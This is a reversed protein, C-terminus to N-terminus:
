PPAGTVCSSSSSPSRRHGAPDSRGPSHSAAIRSRDVRPPIAALLTARFRPVSPLPSSGIPSVPCDHLRSLYIYIINILPQMLFCPFSQDKLSGILQSAHTLQSHRNRIDWVSWTHRIGYIGVNVGWFWGLTLMYPMCPTNPYILKEM